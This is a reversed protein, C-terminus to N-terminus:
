QANNNGGANGGNGGNGGAHNSTRPALKLSVDVNDGAKVTVKDHAFGVKKMTATVNYDGAPIDKLTVKGDKDTKDQAVPAPRTHQGGNAAGGNGNGEDAQQAAADAPKTTAGHPLMVKVTAGEVPKDSSDTVTVTVTGTAAAGSKAADDARTVFALTTMAAVAVLPLVLKSFYKM